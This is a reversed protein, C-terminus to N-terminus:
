RGRVEVLRFRGLVRPYCTGIAAFANGPLETSDILMPEAGCRMQWVRNQDLTAEASVLREGQPESLYYRMALIPEVPPMVAIKGGKPSTAVAFHAAERWQVDEPNRWHHHVHALSQGVILAAAAYSVVSTPLRALGMATLVLWGVLSALVYREVMLPRIAYSVLEVIAFPALIWCLVFGIALSGRRLASWVGFAALVLMTWFAANGTMVLIARLPWWPPQPEITALVGGHLRAIAIRADGIGVPLFLLGAVILITAPRIVCLRSDARGERRILWLYALWLPEAAFFFLVTFNSAVAIDTCLAGGLLTWGRAEDRRHVRAFCWIQAFVATLMLAYMRATRDTTVMRLNTAFLLAALAGALAAAADDPPDGLTRILERVALFVMLITLTGCIASLARMAGVSDGAASMWLHLLLDYIGSKGPDMQQSVAYVTRLDAAAAATWAAAEGRSIEDAGLRYFRLGAGLVLAIILVILAGRNGAAKLV